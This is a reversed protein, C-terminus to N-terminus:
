AKNLHLTSDTFGIFVGGFLVLAWLVLSICAVMRRTVSPPGAAARRVATYYFLIALVLSCMKFLFAYNLYYTDPNISFLLLGSCIALALGGL